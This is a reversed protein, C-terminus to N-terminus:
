RFMGYDYRIGYGFGPIALTAMSDLFCAALRGLGGNGLAADVELEAVSAMDVGLSALAQNMQDYIGLALLANTFTRGILFEMSMYYVRRVDQEYQQRTTKMWRAVLRDRVALAAAHLWDQPRAAVADKGVGYILRNSISRRLADVTNSLQDFELDVATM